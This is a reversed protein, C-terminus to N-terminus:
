SGYEGQHEEGVDFFADLYAEPLLDSERLLSFVETGQPFDKLADLLWYGQFLELSQFGEKTSYALTEAEADDIAAELSAANWLTIREEYVFRKRQGPRPAWQIVSRVSYTPM